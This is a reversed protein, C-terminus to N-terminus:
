LQLQDDVQEVLAAVLVHAVGHRVDRLEAIEGAPRADDVVARALPHALDELLDPAARERLLEEAVVLRSPRLEGLQALLAEFTCRLDLPDALLEALEGADLPQEPRLSRLCM